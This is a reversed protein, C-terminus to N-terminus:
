HKKYETVQLGIGQALIADLAASLQTAGSGRPNQMPTDSIGFSQDVVWLTAEGLAKAPTIRYQKLPELAHHQTVELQMGRSECLRCYKLFAAGKGIQNKPPEGFGFAQGTQWIRITEGTAKAADEHVFTITRYPVYIM